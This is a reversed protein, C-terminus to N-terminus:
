NKLHRYLTALSIGLEQATKIKGKTSAGHIGLLKQIHEKKTKQKPKLIIEQETPNLALAFRPEYLEASLMGDECFCVGYEIFNRLERINGPWHYEMFKKLLGTTVSFKTHYQNEFDKLFFEILLPVDEMRERLPPIFIPIVDLRYFLDKRFNGLEVQKRLNKNSASIIRVDLQISKSAGLRRIKNNQLTRLIKAQMLYPMEGAEDLFLTGGNATELLGQQGNKKAGSFAGEEYGFLLSEM